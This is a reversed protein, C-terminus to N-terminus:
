ATFTDIIQEACRIGDVAASTIGGAYGAGEGCPYIGQISSCGHEDRLLRVPSSSRTEPATLLANGAAFGHLYRDMQMIGQQLADCIFDPLVTHLDCFTVGPQYSPTVPPLNRDGSVDHKGCFAGFTQAPARYTHGAAAFAAQEITRQFAIGALPHESPFDAPTVNVLVASNANQADRAYNSMGNTVIGGSESAAAVVRGGPCMCFTYVGRGNPLHVALKYDAAPLAPHNYFRSGYQAHNIFTQPHEIRVGVAFPKSVMSLGSQYLMSFTDRASHGIALVLRDCPIQRAAGNQIVTIACLRRDHLHIQELRCNFIFQGGLHQIVKRLTVVVDRLKDTGIHPKQQWLIDAPAGCEAFIQLVLRIRPDKIGTQLKGDSFTGAGGEGFQVNSEPLLEGGGFFHRVDQVRQEMPQGREIIIPQLGCKALIYACFLGAPGTGTVVPSMAPKVPCTPLSYPVEDFLGATKCGAHQLITQENGNVAVGVSAIFRIQDKKRADISRRLLQIERIQSADIKLLRCIKKKLTQQTYELPLSLQNIRIMVAGGIQWGVPRLFFGM